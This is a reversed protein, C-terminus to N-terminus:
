AETGMRTGSVQTCERVEADAVQASLQGPGAGGPEEGREARLDDADLVRHALARPVDHAPAGGNTSSRRPMSNPPPNLLWLTSFSPM